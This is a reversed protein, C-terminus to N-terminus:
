TEAAKWAGELAGVASKLDKLAKAVDGKPPPEGHVHGGPHDEAAEGSAALMLPEQLLGARLGTVEVAVPEGGLGVPTIAPYAVGDMVLASGPSATKLTVLTGGVNHMQPHDPVMSHQPDCACEEFDGGFPGFQLSAAGAAGVIPADANFFLTVAIYWHWGVKRKKTEPDCATVYAKAYIHMRVFATINRNGLSDRVKETATDTGSGGSWLSALNDAIWSVIGGGAAVKFTFFNPHENTIPDSPPLTIVSKATACDHDWDGLSLVGVSIPDAM